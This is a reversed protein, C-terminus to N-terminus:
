PAGRLIFGAGIMAVSIAVIMLAVFTLVDSRGNRIM